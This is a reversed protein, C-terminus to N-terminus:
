NPRERGGVGSLNLVVDRIRVVVIWVRQGLRERPGPRPYPM